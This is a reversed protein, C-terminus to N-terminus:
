WYRILPSVHWPPSLRVFYFTGTHSWPLPHSCFGGHWRTIPWVFDITTRASNTTSTNTAERSVLWDCRQEEESTFKAILFEEQRHVKLGILCVHTPLARSPIWGTSRIAVVYLQHADLAHNGKGFNFSRKIGPIEIFVGFRFHASCGHATTWFSSYTLLEFRCCTGSWSKKTFWFTSRLSASQVRKDWAFVVSCICKHM